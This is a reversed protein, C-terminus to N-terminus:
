LDIDRPLDRELRDLELDDFCPAAPDLLFAALDPRQGRLRQYEDAAMVVVAPEGRRTVVQPGESLARRVLEGFREKAEEVQWAM